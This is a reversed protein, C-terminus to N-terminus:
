HDKRQSEFKRQVEDITQEVGNQNKYSQQYDKKCYNLVHEPYKDSDEECKDWEIILFM